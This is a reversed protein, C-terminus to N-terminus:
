SMDKLRTGNATEHAAKLQVWFAYAARPNKYISLLNYGDNAVMKNRMPLGNAFAYTLGIVAAALLFLPLFSINECLFFLLAFILASLANFLVGGLNYLM